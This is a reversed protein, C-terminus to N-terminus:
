QGREGASTFDDSAIFEDRSAFRRLPRTGDWSHALKEIATMYARRFPTMPALEVLTGVFPPSTYYSVNKTGDHLYVSCLEEFGAQELAKCSGEFDDPWFGLHHLGERGANLFELYLSPASNTQAILELQTEGAYSFAISMEVNTVQGRYVFRRGAGSGEILIWPGIGMEQAWFATAAEIDKVVMGVQTRQGVIDPLRLSSGSNSMPDGGSSQGVKNM